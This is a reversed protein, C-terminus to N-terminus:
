GKSTGYEDREREGNREHDRAWEKERACENRESEMEKGRGSSLGRETDDEGSDIPLAHLL